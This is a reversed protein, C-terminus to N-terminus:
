RKGKATSHLHKLTNVAKGITIHSSAQPGKCRNHNKATPENLMHSIELQSFRVTKVLQAVLLIVLIKM